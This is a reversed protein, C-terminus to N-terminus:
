QTRELIPAKVAASRCMESLGPLGLTLEPVFAVLLLGILLVVRYYLMPRTAEEVTTEAISAQEAPEQVSAAALLRNDNLRNFRPFSV